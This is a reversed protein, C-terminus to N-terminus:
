TRPQAPPAAAQRLLERLTITCQAALDFFEVAVHFGDPEMWEVRWGEYRPTSRVVRGHMVIPSADWHLDFSVKEGVPQGSPLELLAGYESLDVLTGTPGSHLVVRLPGPRVREGRRQTSKEPQSVEGSQLSWGGGPGARFAAIVEAM